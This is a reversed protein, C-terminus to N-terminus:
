TQAPRSVFLQQAEIRQLHFTLFPKNIPKSEVVLRPVKAFTCPLFTKAGLFAEFYFGPNSEVGSFM